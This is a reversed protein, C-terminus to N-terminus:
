WTCARSAKEKGRRRNAFMSLVYTGLDTAAMSEKALANDYTEYKATGPHYFLGATLGKENMGDSALFQHFADIGVFGYKGNWTLGVKGDPLTGFMKKERPAVFIRSFIDTSGWEMSRGRVVAGDQARLFIGTCM